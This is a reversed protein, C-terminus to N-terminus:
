RRRRLEQRIESRVLGMMHMDLVELAQTAPTRVLQIRMRLNTTYM